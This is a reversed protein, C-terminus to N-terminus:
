AVADSELVVCNKFLRFHIFLLANDSFVCFVPCLSESELASNPIVTNLALMPLDRRGFPWM